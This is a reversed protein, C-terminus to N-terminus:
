VAGWEWGQWVEKSGESRQSRQDAIVEEPLGEIGVDEVLVM